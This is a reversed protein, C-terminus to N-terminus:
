AGIVVGDELVVRGRRPSVVARRVALLGTRVRLLVGKRPVVVVLLPAWPVDRFVVEADRGDVARHVTGGAGRLVVADLTRGSATAVACVGLEHHRRPVVESSRDGDVRWRRGTGRARRGVGRRREVRERGPQRRRVVNVPARPEGGTGLEGRVAVAIALVLDHAADIAAPAHDRDELAGDVRCQFQRALELRVTREM